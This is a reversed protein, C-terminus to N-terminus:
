AHISLSTTYLCYKGRETVAPYKQSTGTESTGSSPSSFPGAFRGALLLGAFFNSLLFKGNHINESVVHNNAMNSALQLILHILDHACM